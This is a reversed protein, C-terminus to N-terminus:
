FSKKMIIALEEENNEEHQIENIFVKAFERLCPMVFMSARGISLINYM